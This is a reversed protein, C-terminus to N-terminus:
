TANSSSTAYSSSAPLGTDVSAGHPQAKANDTSDKSEVSANKVPAQQDSANADSPMNVDLVIDEGMVVVGNVFWDMSRLEEDSPVNDHAIREVGNSDQVPGQFVQYFGEIIDKKKGDVMDRIEQPVMDGYPAIDVIGSELGKWYDFEEWEGAKLREVVEVYFPTWNWVAATLHTEPVLKSMDSHYGISYVGREAAALQVTAGDTHQALVDANASNILFDAASKEEAPSYWNNTWVVRVEASPNVEQVGLAFANIGRIVEPVPFSAVYGISNTKTMAGAVMGTLYRAQYMRGFFVSINPTTADGSCHLFKVNPNEAAVKLLGQEYGLSTAVILNYGRAAMTEMAREGDLGISEDEVYATVVGDIKDLARRARDHEHTWGTPELPAVYVFGVGILSNDKLPTANQGISANHGFGVEDQTANGNESVYSSNTNVETVENGDCGSLLGIFCCFLFLIRLNKM